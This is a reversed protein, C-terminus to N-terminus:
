QPRRALDIPIRRYVLVRGKYGTGPERSLPAAPVREEAVGFGRAAMARHFAPRNGRNPDIVWVEAQPEAHCDIFAALAGRVDREYLLDSGIILDYRGVVIAASAEMELEIQRVGANWQGHRYKMPRLGNLRLNELLFAEALPHCDSATVDAGRRHGVLSAVALGCGVELIRECPRVPRLALRAALIAESPWSLGFLPWAASSIGLREAQGLPDCYERRDLLSRILLDQVGAVAVCEHKTRYGAPAM